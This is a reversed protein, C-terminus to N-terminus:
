VREADRVLRRYQREWMLKRKAGRRSPQENLHVLLMGRPISSDRRRTVHEVVYYSKEDLQIRVM